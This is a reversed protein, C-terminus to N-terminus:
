ALIGATSGMGCRVCIPRHPCRAQAMPSRRHRRANRRAHTGRCRGAARIRNQVLAVPAAPKRSQSRHQEDGNLCWIKTDAQAAANPAFVSHSRSPGPTGLPRARSEDTADTRARRLKRSCSPRKGALSLESEIPVLVCAGECVRISVSQNDPNASNATGRFQDFVFGGQALLPGVQEYQFGDAHFIRLQRKHHTVPEEYKLTCQHRSPTRQLATTLAM